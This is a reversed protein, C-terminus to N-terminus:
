ANKKNLKIKVCRRGKLGIAGNRVLDIALLEADSQSVATVVLTEKEEFETTIDLTYKHILDIQNSELARDVTDSSWNIVSAPAKRIDKLSRFLM